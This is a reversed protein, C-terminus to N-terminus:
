GNLAEEGYGIEKLRRISEGRDVLQLEFDSRIRSLKQLRAIRDDGAARHEGSRRQQETEREAQADLKDAAAFVIELLYGHTKLPLTLKQANRLDIMQDLAQAWVAVPAARTVGNRTVSEAELMPLLEAMLKDARDMALVRSKPRFLGLYQALLGALPAPMALARILAGRAAEMQIAADLSFRAGCAICSIRM